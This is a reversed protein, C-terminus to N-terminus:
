RPMHPRNHRTTNHIVSASVGLVHDSHYEENAINISKQVWAM